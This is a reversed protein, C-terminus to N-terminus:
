FRLLRSIHDTLSEEYEIEPLRQSLFHKVRDKDKELVFIKFYPSFRSKRQFIIENGSITFGKLTEYPYVKKEDIVLGNQDLKFEIERPQKRALNLIVLAAIAVFVAFLFNRQWLALAILLITAIIALWYWSPGKEYYEFEPATWRIEKLV